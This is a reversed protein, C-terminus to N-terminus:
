KRNFIYELVAGSEHPKLDKNSMLEKQEEGFFKDVDVKHLLKSQEDNADTGIGLIPPSPKQKPKLKM